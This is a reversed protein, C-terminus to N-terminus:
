VKRQQVAQLLVGSVQEEGLVRKSIKNLRVKMKEVDIFGNRILRNQDLVGYMDTLFADTLRIKNQSVKAESAADPVEISVVLTIIQTVGKEDIIPVVIPNLHVYLLEPTTPAVAQTAEGDAAHAASSMYFYSGGGIALAIVLGVVIAFAKPM